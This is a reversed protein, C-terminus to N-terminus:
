ALGWGQRYPVESAPVFPEAPPTLVGQVATGATGLAADNAKYWAVARLVNDRNVLAPADPAPPLPDDVFRDLAGDLEDAAADVCAQLTEANGATLRVHLAAALEDVTCYAM